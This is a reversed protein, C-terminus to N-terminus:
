SDKANDCGGCQCTKDTEWAMWRAKPFRGSFPSWDPEREEVFRFSMDGPHIDFSNEIMHRAGERTPARVAACVISGAGSSGSVWWPSHLEFESLDLVCFSVWWSHMEAM